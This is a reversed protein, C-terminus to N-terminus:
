IALVLADQTGSLGASALGLVGLLHDLIQGEHCGGLGLGVAMKWSRYAAWKNVLKSSIVLVVCKVKIKLTRIFTFLSNSM